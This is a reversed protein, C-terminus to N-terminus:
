YQYRNKRIRRRREKKRRDIDPDLMTPIERRDKGSRKEIIKHNVPTPHSDIRDIMVGAGKRKALVERKQRISPRKCGDDSLVRSRKVALSTGNPM